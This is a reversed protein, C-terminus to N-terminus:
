IIILVLIKRLNKLSNGIVKLHGKVQINGIEDAGVPESDNVIRVKARLLYDLLELNRKGNIPNSSIINTETMGYRELIKHGTISNFDMFTEELLPASGSIFIRM